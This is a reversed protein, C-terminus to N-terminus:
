IQVAGEKETQADYNEWAESISVSLKAFTPDKKLMEVDYFFSINCGLKRCLLLAGERLFDALTWDPYIKREDKLKAFTFTVYPNKILQSVLRSEEEINIQLALDGTDQIGQVDPGKNFLERALKESKERNAGNDEPIVEPEKSYKPKIGHLEEVHVGVSRGGTLEVDCEICYWINKGPSYYVPGNSKKWDGKTVDFKGKLEIDSTTEETTETSETPEEPKKTSKKASM